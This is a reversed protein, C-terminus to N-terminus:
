LGLANREVEESSSMVSNFKISGIRKPAGLSLAEEEPNAM